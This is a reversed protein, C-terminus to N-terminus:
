QSSNLTSAPVANSRNFSVNNSRSSGHISTNNYTGITGFGNNFSYSGSSSSGQYSNPKDYQSMAGFRGSPRRSPNYSRRGEIMLAEGSRDESELAITQEESLLKTELIKFTPLESGGYMHKFVTYEKSLSAITCYVVIDKPLNCGIEELMDVMNRIDVLYSDM